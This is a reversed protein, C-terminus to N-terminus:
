GSLRAKAKAREIMNAAKTLGHHLGSALERAEAATIGDVYRERKFSDTFFGLEIDFQDLMESPSDDSPAKGRATIAVTLNHAKVVTARHFRIGSGDDIDDSEYGHGARQDCWPPCPAAAPPFLPTPATTM